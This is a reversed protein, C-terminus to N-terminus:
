RPLWGRARYYATAAIEYASADSLWLSEQTPMMWPPPVGDDSRVPAASPVPDLGALRFLMLSRSMHPPSTVLVFPRNGGARLLPALRQVQERTNTSTSEQVVITSDVGAAVVADRLMKSEPLLQREPRPRGGSVILHAASILKAVRAGELARLVSDPNLQGLVAGAVETTAAGGGLVVVTDAGRAADVTTVRPSGASVTRVLLEAGVRSSVFWFGLVVIALYARAARSSPRRWLWVAAVALVVALPLPSSLHLQEKAFSLIV